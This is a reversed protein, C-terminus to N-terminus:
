PLSAAFDDLAGFMDSNALENAQGAYSVACQLMVSLLAQQWKCLCLFVQRATILALVGYCRKHLVSGGLSCPSCM